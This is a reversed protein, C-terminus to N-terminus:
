SRETARGSTSRTTPVDTMIEIGKWASRVDGNKLMVEIKDQHCTERAKKIATKVERQVTKREEM